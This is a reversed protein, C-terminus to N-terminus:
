SLNLWLALGYLKEKASNCATKKRTGNTSNLRHNYGSKILVEQYIPNSHKFTEDNLSPRSLPKKVPLSLQRM